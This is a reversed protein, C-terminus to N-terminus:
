GYHVVSTVRSTDLRDRGGLAGLEILVAVGALAAGQATVLQAAAAATGGTALVDDVILVSDASSLADDHIELTDTGYELGYAASVTAGPLKGPKRAPVFGAGLEAAVLPGFLFGRAELGMVHSVGAHRHPEAMLSSADALAGPQSLLPTIDRFLIGPEPFDPISRILATLEAVDHTGGM